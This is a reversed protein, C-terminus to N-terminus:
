ELNNFEGQEPPTPEPGPEPVPEQPVPEGETEGKGPRNQQFTGIPRDAAPVQSPDQQQQALAALAEPRVARLTKRAAPSEQQAIVDQQGPGLGAALESTRYFTALDFTQVPGIEGETVSVVQGGRLEVTESGSANSVRIPDEFNATLVGVRTQSDESAYQVFLATGPVTVSANPTEVNSSGSGPRIVILVTGNRLEFRRLGPEFRFETNSPARALTGENFILDARSRSGTELRDQPTLIAQPSTREGNLLVRNVLDYIQAQKLASAAVAASGVWPLLMTAAVVFPALKSSQPFYKM